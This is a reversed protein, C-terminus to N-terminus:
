WLIANNILHIIALFMGIVICAVLFGNALVFATTAIQAASQELQFAKADLAEHWGALARVFGGARRLANTLRWRLEGSDDMVGIARPLKVGENLLRRVRKARRLMTGNATSEGALVVAEAEPVEADLLVALMASFDRQLRKRRWPVHCFFWDPVGPLVGSVVRRLRPGGLYALVALWILLFLGVQCGTIATQQDLVLRTFPPLPTGEYTGAFVQEFSPFVKIRLFIPVSITFPTALFALLLLYNLAGRVQSTSDRLLLRCAPLVKAIDGIREGAAIMATVQAPLQGPVRELAQSLRLGEQLRAAVSQFRYGLARDRSAAADTIAAEPSRGDKLGLELLDLFFRARESRRLPLTILFHILFLIGLLPLLGLLVFAVFALLLAGFGALPDSQFMQQLGTM